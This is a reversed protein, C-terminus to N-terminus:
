LRHLVYRQAYSPSNKIDLKGSPVPLLKVADASCPEALGIESLIKVCQRMAKDSLEVGYIQQATQMSQKLDATGGTSCRKLSLYFRGIDDYVPFRELYSVKDDRESSLHLDTLKFQVSTRGNWVNLEPQFLIDVYKYEVREAYQAMHWGVAGWRRGDKELTLRLHNQEKGIVRAQCVYVDQCVFLPKPNAMGFPELKALDNIFDETIDSPEVVAEVSFVPQLDEDKLHEQAYSEIHEIFEPIKATEITFGAAKSHGGYVVFDGACADLAEKMHFGDISRCSARGFLEDVAIIIIPRYYKEQLRSAAIGIVGEHWKDGAVIIVRNKYLEEADIKASAKRFIDEVIEQREKNEEDLYLSKERATQEDKAMLLEVAASAHTLRGAANLRPGAGFGIHGTNLNKLDYGCVKLLEGLGINNIHALGKKVIRRNEDTLPVIDAVTALAAIDLYQELEAPDRGLTIYIAQCLKFAVGAGCLNKHPYSCDQQHPNVVALVDPLEELPLHHDTIIMDIRGKIHAAEKIATIGCDVTIILDYSGILKDLSEIHLGYGESHRDPLYYNAKADLGRLVHLLLATSSVGDVDYDGYICIREGGSLAQEIRRCAKDMDKMAFPDHYAIKEPHLFIDAQGADLDRRALVGALASSIGLSKQLAQQKKEDAPIIEWRKYM